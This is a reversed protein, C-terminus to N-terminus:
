KIVRHVFVSGNGVKDDAYVTEVIELIPKGYVHNVLGVLSKYSDVDYRHLHGWQEDFEGGIPHTEPTHGLDYDEIQHELTTLPKAADEPTTDRRPIVSYIIGDPRVVRWWELLCKIPNPQHEFVHSNLLFNFNSDPFPLEDVMAVVDVWRACGCVRAEQEKWLTIERTFDVNISPIGFSNHSSAGLEVGAEKSTALPLLWRDAM